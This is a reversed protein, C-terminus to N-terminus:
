CYWDESFKILWVFGVGDEKEWIGFKCGMVEVMVFGMGIVDFVVGVFCGCVYVMVDGM